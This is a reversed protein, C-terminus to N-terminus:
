QMVFSTFYLAELRDGSGGESELVNAVAELAEERLREKGERQTLTEQTQSGLLMLLENRIKADHTNLLDATVPDRTLVEVSVQLFRMLGRSEFNVVFPPELKVYIAPGKSRLSQVDHSMAVNAGRMDVIFYAAGGAVAAAIVSCVVVVVWLSVGRKVPLDQEAAANANAM